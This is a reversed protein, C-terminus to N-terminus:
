CALNVKGTISKVSYIEIEECNRQPCLLLFKLSKLSFFTCSTSSSLSAEAHTWFHGSSIESFAFM